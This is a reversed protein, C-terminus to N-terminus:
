ELAAAARLAKAGDRLFTVDGGAVLLDYGREFKEAIKEGAMVIGGLKKGSQKISREAEAILGIVKADDFAMLKQVSGSLDTPGIFLVDIGDVAAIEAANKVATASEIQGIILLNDAATKAYDAARMGYDSARTASFAAGRNGLPPYRCARVAAQAQAASEIGPIMVGEVGADLARKLYTPDDSEVRMVLTAGGVAAARMVDIATKFNGPGHEHDIMLVDFGALALIEAADASGLWLWCGQCKHGAQLRAKLRNDRYM